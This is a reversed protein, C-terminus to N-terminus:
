ATGASKKESDDDDEACEPPAFYMTYGRQGRSIVTGDLLMPALTNHLTKDDIMLRKALAWRNFGGDRRLVNVIRKRLLACGRKVDVIPGRNGGRAPLWYAAAMPDFKLARGNSMARLLDGLDNSTVELGLRLHIQGQTLKPAESNALIEVVRARVKARLDDLMM